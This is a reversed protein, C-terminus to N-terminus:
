FADEDDDEFGEVADEEAAPELEEFGEVAEDESVYSGDLPEDDRVFQVTILSANCRTGYQNNQWWPDIKANVRCGAYIRDETKSLVKRASRDLVVPPRSKTAANVTWYGAYEDRGSDDGDRLFIKSSPLAKGKNREKALRGIATLLAKYTAQHAKDNKDLLFVGSHKGEDGNIVPKDWFHPFSVRVNNLMVTNRPEPM